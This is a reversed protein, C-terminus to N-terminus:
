QGLREGPETKLDVSIARHENVHKQVVIEHRQSENKYLTILM